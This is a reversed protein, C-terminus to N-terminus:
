IQPIAQKTGAIGSIHRSHTTCTAAGTVLTIVRESCDNQSYKVFQLGSVEIVLRGLSSKNQQAMSFLLRSACYPGSRYCVHSICSICRPLHTGCAM